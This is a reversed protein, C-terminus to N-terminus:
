FAPNVGEYGPNEIHARLLIGPWSSSPHKESDLWTTSDVSDPIKQAQQVVTDALVREIDLRPLDQEIGAVLEKANYQTQQRPSFDIKVATRILRTFPDIREAIGPSTHLAIATWVKHSDSKSIGNAMLHAEAADAGEVEFRQKGNYLECAGMDHFIAAAFVLPLSGREALANDPETEALWKAILYVRLSHNFIAEPLNKRASELADFCWKHSPIEGLVAKPVM